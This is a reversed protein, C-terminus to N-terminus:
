PNKAVLERFTALEADSIPYTHEVTPFRRERVDDAYAAVAKRLSERLCAYVQVFRPPSDATM